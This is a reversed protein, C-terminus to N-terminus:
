SSNQRKTKWYKDIQKLEEVWFKDREGDIVVPTADEIKTVKRLQPPIGPLGWFGKGPQGTDSNVVLASLLPRGCQHEYQSCAGVIWGMKLPFWDTIPLLGINSGLEGYTITIRDYPSEKARKILQCYAKKVKDIWEEWLLFCGQKRHGEYIRQLQGEDMECKESRHEEPM